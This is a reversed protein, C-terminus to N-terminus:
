LKSKFYYFFLAKMPQSLPKLGSILASVQSVNLGTDSCIDKLKIGTNKMAQSIWESNVANVPNETYPVPHVNVRNLVPVFLAKTSSVIEKVTLYKGSHTRGQVAGIIVGRGTVEKIKFTLNIHRRSLLAGAELKTKDQESIQLLHLNKIENM